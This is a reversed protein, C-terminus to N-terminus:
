EGGEGTSIEPLDPLRKEKEWRNLYYSLAVDSEEYSGPGYILKVHIMRAGAGPTVVSLEDQESQRFEEDLLPKLYETLAADDMREITARKEGATMRKARPASPAGYTIARKNREDDERKVLTRIADQESPENMAATVRSLADVEPGRFTVRITKTQSM